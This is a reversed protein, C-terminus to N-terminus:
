FRGSAARENASRKWSSGTSVTWSRALVCWPKVKLVTHLRGDSRKASKSIDSMSVPKWTLSRESGVRRFSSKVFILESVPLGSVNYMKTGSSSSLIGENDDAAKRVLLRLNLFALERPIAFM